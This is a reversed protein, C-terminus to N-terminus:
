SARFRRWAHRVTRVAKLPPAIDFRKAAGAVAFLRTYADPPTGVQPSTRVGYLHRLPLGLTTGGTKPIHLFIVV